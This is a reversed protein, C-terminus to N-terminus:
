RQTPFENLEFQAGRYTSLHATRTALAQRFAAEAQQTQGAAALQRGIWYRAECERDARGQERGGRAAELLAASDIRGSLFRLLQVPWLRDDAEAGLKDAFMRSAEQEKGTMRMSWYLWPDLWVMQPNLTRAQTFENAAAAYDKQFFRAFGLDARAEGSRPNLEVARRYSAIAEDLKGQAMQAAGLMGFAMPQGPTQKSFVAFDAEAAAPQGNELRTMGRNILAQHFNSNLEYARTFDAIAEAPKRQSRFYMGRDNYVFADEGFERLANRYTDLVQQDEGAAAYAGALELHSAMLKPSAQISQAFDAAAKDHDGLYAHTRGRQYLLTGRDEASLGAVSLTQDAVQLATEAHERRDEISALATMGYLYPLYYTKHTRGGRTIAERADAIGSRVLDANGQALGLEIRASGRYYFARDDESNQRLAESARDVATQFDGREIAAKSEDTLRQSGTAPQSAPPQAAVPSAVLAAASLLPAVLWALGPRRSSILRGFTRRIM